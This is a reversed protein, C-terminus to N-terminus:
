QLYLLDVENKSENFYINNFGAKNLKQKTEVLFNNNVKKLEESPFEEPFDIQISLPSDDIFTGNRKYYINNQQISISTGKPLSNPLYKLLKKIQDKYLFPKYLIYNVKKSNWSEYYINDYAKSYTQKYMHPLSGIGLVSTNYGERANSNSQYPIFSYLKNYFINAKDKHVFRIVKRFSLDKMSWTYDPLIYDTELLNSIIDKFWSFNTTDEHLLAITVEDPKNELHLLKNIDNIIRDKNDPFAILDIGINIGAEHLKKILISIDNKATCIRNEQKLKEQDFTQLCLIVTTFNEKKIAEITKDTISLGTHLEIVKENCKIDRLKEFSPVLNALDEEINPTGGGFYISNIYQGKIAKKYKNIQKPLYKYFYKYYLNKDKETYKNGRYCCYECISKCFASHIYIQIPNKNIKWLKKIKSFSVQRQM